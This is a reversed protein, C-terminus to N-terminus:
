AVPILAKIANQQAETYPSFKAADNISEYAYEADAADKVDALAAEAVAAVNKTTSNSSYVYEGGETKFYLRATFDRDLNAEKINTIAVTFIKTTTTESQFKTAPITQANPTEVTLEGEVNRDLAVVMGFEAFQAVYESAVVGEFRLGTEAALRVSAGSTVSPVYSTVDAAIGGTVPVALDATRKTWGLTDAMTSVTGVLEEARVKSCESRTSGIKEDVLGYCNTFTREGSKVSGNAIQAGDVEGLNICNTYAVTGKTDGATIGAGSVITGLNLCNSVECAMNNINGIFGAARSGSTIKGSFVCNEISLKGEGTTGQPCGVFGGANESVADVVADMYVNEIVLEKGSALQPEGVIGGLGNGANESKFYAKVFALNKVSANGAISDFLGGQRANADTGSSALENQAAAKVYLGTISYGNGNLTGTFPKSYSALSNMKYDPATTGWTDYDSVDNLVIDATLEFSDDLYDTGASRKNGVMTVFVEWDAKSGIEWPDAPTGSGALEAANVTIPLVGIVGILMTLTLLLSVIKKKM